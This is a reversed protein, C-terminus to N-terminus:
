NVQEVKPLLKENDEKLEEDVEVFLQNEYHQSITSILLDYPVKAMAATTGLAISLAGIAYLPNENVFNLALRMLQASAETVIIKDAEPLIVPDDDTPM